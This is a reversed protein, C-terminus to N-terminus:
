SDDDNDYPPWRYDDTNGHYIPEQDMRKCFDDYTEDTADNTKDDYPYYGYENDDINPLM